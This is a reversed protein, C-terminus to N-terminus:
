GGREKVRLCGLWKEESDVVTQGLSNPRQAIVVLGAMLPQGQIKFIGAVSSWPTGKGAEGPLRVNAFMTHAFGSSSLQSPWRCIRPRHLEVIRDLGPVIADFVRPLQGGSPLDRGRGVPALIVAALRVPINYFELVPGDGPPGQQGLEGVDITLDPPPPLWKPRRRVLIRWVIIAGILVIAAAGIVFWM